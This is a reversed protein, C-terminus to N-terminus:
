VPIYINRKNFVNYLCYFIHKETEQFYSFVAIQKPGKIDIVLSRKREVICCFYHKVGFYFLLLLSMRVLINACKSSLQCVV